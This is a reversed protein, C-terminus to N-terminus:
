YFFLVDPRIGGNTQTCVGCRMQYTPAIESVVAPILAPHEPAHYSTIALRPHFRTLTQRAGRLANPEAGEIDMKIFDVRELGLEGVLKDITTLPVQQVQQFKPDAHLFSAAATNAPDVYLTLQDDKDWVGKPYVVVRGSAIESALNRRLCELTAPAPEIAVVLRAGAELAHRAYVGVNAGCDLVVDGPRVAIGPASYIDTEQEALHFPLFFDNGRTIWFRGKPTEWLVFGAPDEELKRSAALIRDKTATLLRQHAASELAQTWPCHPSKGAAVMWALRLSERKFYGAAALALAVAALLLKSPRHNV